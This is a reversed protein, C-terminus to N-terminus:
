IKWQLNLKADWIGCSLMDNLRASLRPNVKTMADALNTKGDIWSVCDLEGSEFADRMRAVTKRLRYERPEHLTTITDFLARADVYLEHTWEHGPLLSKLSMKLDFGRDDADAAALIEVGFASYSVRKQKHSTWSVPQYIRDKKGDEEILLGCLGGTQGYISDAGGHAADSLSVIKVKQPNTPRIYRIYPRLQTIDTMNSNGEIIHKVRLDGLHQQMRSTIMAAQPVVSNGMYMLTGALARFATEESATVKEDRQKKRLRSLPITSLKSMYEWMSLEIANTGVDIECGNFYFTGGITVKGVEFEKSLERMFERIDETKGAILFDDIVKAILLVIKDGKKRVFVQNVGGVGSMGLTRLLWDDVRLLWQRGADTMGYPLKLLKWVTGRKRHCDKPPRVYVDRRIPGSQMYAGKIDASAMNFDLITALSIIMRIIMMDAAASDSRVLERDADRNGHVVIRGKLRLSGDDETKIKFIVHSSIVNANRPLESEPVEEYADVWNQDHEARMAKEVIWNPAFAIASATVQNTGIKEKMDRLITDEQSCLRRGAISRENGEYDGVDKRIGDSIGKEDTMHSDNSSAYIDNRMTQDNNEGQEDTKTINGGLMATATAEDNHHLGSTGEEGEASEEDSLDTGNMLDTALTSKPLIRLDEYAVRANAGKKGTKIEVLDKFVTSVTGERWEPQESCKTSNYYYAVRDGEKIDAESLTTTRRGRLLKNLARIAAQQKHADLLDQPIKRTPNGVISPVYGKALEFASMIKSGYLCNSLFCSKAVLLKPKSDNDAKALRELIRKVTGHKREIVGCKNHRRSPRPKFGIARAALEKRITPRNFEDDASLVDPSGHAYIWAMDLESLLNDARRTEVLRVESFGTGVDVVHLAPYIEGRIRFYTFDAQIESNFQENVHSISIKKSPSPPGTMACSACNETVTIIAKELEPNLWGADKCLRILQQPHDHTLNHMRKALTMPRIHMPRRANGILASTRMTPIVLLRLRAKLPDGTSLCTEMTRVGKDSPRNMIMVPPSALNDTLTYKKVDMGLIIPSADNTVDFDIATPKNKMDQMYLTWSAIIDSADSSKPGWGRKYVTRPEDLTVERNM